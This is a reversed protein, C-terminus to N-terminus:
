LKKTVLYAGYPLTKLAKSIKFSLGTQLRVRDAKVTTVKLALTKNHPTIVEVVDGVQLSMKLMSVSPM